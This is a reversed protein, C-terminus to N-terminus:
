NTSKNPMHEHPGIFGVHIKGTSGSTDDLFYIRPALPGGGEAIKIHAEMFVKGSASVIPDVPLMRKESLRRDNHVGDSEKM